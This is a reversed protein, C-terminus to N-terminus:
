EPKVEEAVSANDAVPADASVKFLKEFLEIDHAYPKEAEETLDKIVTAELDPRLEDIRKNIEDEKHLLAEAVAKDRAAVIEDYYAKAKEIDIEM